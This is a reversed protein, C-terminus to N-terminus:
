EDQAVSDPPLEIVVRFGVDRNGDSGSGISGCRASNVPTLFSGGMIRYEPSNGIRDSVFERVNGALDYVGYSSRDRPFSGVPAGHLYRAAAPNDSVLAASEDPQNGWVFVRGDVGRGAKEWEKATPLRGDLGLQKGFYRCYAEAARGSIGVVPMNATFPGQLEGEANWINRYRMNGDSWVGMYRSKLVPDTLSKWFKLYEGFTVENRSILFSPLMGKSHLAGPRIKGNEFDGAPILVMGAPIQPPDTIDLSVSEASKLQLPYFTPEAGAKVLKILYSGSKLECSGAPLPTWKATDTAMDPSNERIFASTHAPLALSFMAVDADFRRIMRGLARDRRLVTPMFNRWRARFQRLVNRFMAQNGTEMCFTLERKLLEALMEATYENDRRIQDLSSLSELAANSYSFFELSQRSYELEQERQRLESMGSSDHAEYRLLRFTRRALNYYADSQMNNFEALEILSEARVRENIQQVFGVGGLTLLAALATVPVLPRRLCLKIFRYFWFGRYASVPFKDLFNRVDGILALATQYREGPDRSMAKLTVAELERPIALRPARRRPRVFRGNVVEDLLRETPLTADYPAPELTLLTYLIAGLSYIDTREDIAENQGAAQEPAMFAPTGSIVCKKPEAKPEEALLPSETDLKLRNGRRSRDKDAHYTALGWDVLLVEGYEGLMVNGPKLDRHIVGHSHAFAIAQGIAIFIELRRQLSYRRRYEPSGDRLHKIVVRLTEGEIRKMTFFVGADDFVGIRHVPVINPHDIQATTRAERIFSEVHGPKDRFEPRLMKLAVERNLGPERAAFVAGLGGMGITSIDQYDRIDDHEPLGLLKRLEETSLRADEPSGFIMTRDDDSLTTDM